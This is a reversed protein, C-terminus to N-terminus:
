IKRSKPPLVNLPQKDVCMHLFAAQVPPVNWFAETAFLGARNYSLHEITDHDWDCNAFFESFFRQFYADLRNISSDGGDSFFKIQKEVLEGFKHLFAVRDSGPTTNETLVKKALAHPSQAHDAYGGNVDWLLSAFTRVAMTREDINFAAFLNNHKIHTYANYTDIKENYLGAFFDFTQSWSQFDPDDLILQVQAMPQQLLSATWRFSYDTRLVTYLDNMVGANRATAFFNQLVHPNAVDDHLWDLRLQSFISAFLDTRKHEILYMATDSQEFASFQKSLHLLACDRSYVFLNLGLSVSKWNWNPVNFTRACLLANVVEESAHHKLWEVVTDLMPNKDAPAVSNLVRELSEVIRVNIRSSNYPHTVYETKSQQDLETQFQRDLLVPDNVFPTMNLELLVCGLTGRNARM